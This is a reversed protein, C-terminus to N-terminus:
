LPILYQKLFVLVFTWLIWGMCIQFFRRILNDIGKTQNIAFGLERWGFFGAFFNVFGGVFVVCVIKVAEQEGSSSPSLVWALAPLDLFVLFIFLIYSTVREEM